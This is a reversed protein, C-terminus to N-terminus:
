TLPATARRPEVAEATVAAIPLEDEAPALRTDVCIIRLIMM